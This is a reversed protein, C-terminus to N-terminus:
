ASQPMFGKGELWALAGDYDFREILSFLETYEVDKGSACPAQRLRDASATVADYDYEALAACVAELERGVVCHEKRIGEGPGDLPLVALSARLAEIGELLGPLQERCESRQGSLFMREWAFFEESLKKAGVGALSSKMGHIHVMLEHLDDADFLERAMRIFGPITKRLLSVSKVYIDTQGGTNDLGEVINLGPVEPWELPMGRNMSVEAKRPEAGERGLWHLMTERLENKRIPKSLFGNMGSALLYEKMGSVANATLAIVPVRELRGGRRRLERTTEVGDMGPMMHDMFILDYDKNEAKRLCESGSSATDCEIGYYARILGSAVNLNIRQDDVILVRADSAIAVGVEEDWCRIKSEDGPVKPIVVIFMSGRGYDSTVHIEGDMLEALHRCIPLGLGTGGIHSNAGAHAQEFAEFLQQIRNEPIGIGTDAVAFRLLAEEVSVTLTVSGRQTFKVANGILNVLIQRLRVDDGYLCKPPIEGEIILHFRLGKEEALHGALSDINTLFLRFDYDAPRLRMKGAELKSLDLVDNVIVLLNETSIKVDQIYQRQQMTLDNEHLLLDSIGLIANMPTRIEHSVNAFVRDKAQSAALIREKEIETEMSKVQVEYALNLQELMARLAGQLRDIETIDSESLFKEVSMRPGRGAMGDTAHQFAAALEHIPHVVNNVSRYVLALMLVLASLSVAAGLFLFGMMAEGQANVSLGSFFMGIIKTGNYLPSYCVLHDEGHLEMRGMHRSGAMVKTVIAPDAKMGTLLLGSRDAVTSSICEDGLFIMVEQNTLMKMEDVFANNDLRFGVIVTGAVNGAGDYISAGGTLALRTLPGSDVVATSKGELAARVPGFDAIMDGTKSHHTRALVWGAGDTVVCLDIESERALRLAAQRVLDEDRALVADRFKKDLTMRLAAQAAKRLQDDFQKVITNGADLLFETGKKDFYSNFVMSYVLLVFVSLLLTIGVISVMLKRKISKTKKM